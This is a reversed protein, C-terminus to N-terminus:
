RAPRAERGAMGQYMFTALKPGKAYETKLAEIRFGAGAILEDTQRDLHCGGSIRQWLPTLRHQWRQVGPEPALGHEVFLLKGGAALVRRMEALARQVDPISCLTWTSVVTDVSGARLPIEEASGQLFEVPFPMEGRHRAAMALLQPSPDLGLVQAVQRNYFPLNLGSGIGVELVRGRAQPILQGRYRTVEKNKMALNILHPLISQQYFGMLNAM